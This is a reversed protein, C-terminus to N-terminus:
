RLSLGYSWDVPGTIEKKSFLFARHLEYIGAGDRM